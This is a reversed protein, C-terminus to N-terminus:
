MLDEVLSRVISNTEDSCQPCAHLEVPFRQGVSSYAADSVAPARMEFGLGAMM